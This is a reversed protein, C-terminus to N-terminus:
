RHNIISRSPGLGGKEAMRQVIKLARYCFSTTVSRSGYWATGRHDPILFIPEDDWGGDHRQSNLLAMVWGIDFYQALERISNGGLCTLILFAADQPTVARREIEPQLRDLLVRSTKNLQDKPVQPWSRTSLITLLRLTAWLAYPPVYYLNAGLGNQLIREVLSLASKKITDDYGAWRCDILGLLLNTETTVCSHGWVVIPADGNGDGARNFWVPIEGSPLISAKLWALPLELIQRHKDKNEAASFRYLRLLLGLDDADPPLPSYDYYSFGTGQLTAYVEAVQESLDHGHQCLAEIILGSPFAKGVLEPLREPQGRQIDWSERFTLDSLLFAEAMRAAKRVAELYPVLNPKASRAPVPQGSKRSPGSGVQLSFLDGLKSMVAEVLGYYATFTPLILEDALNRCSALDALLERILEGIAGTLVSAGLVQEPVYPQHPDLGAAVLTRLIPYTYDRRMLDRRLMTIDQLNKLIFNLRDMMLCLQTLDATRGTRIAMAVVPIKTFAWQSAVAPPGVTQELDRSPSGPRSAPDFNQRTALFALAAEYYELWFAEHHNWFPSQGPFLHALHLDSRQSLARELLLLGQDFGTVRGLIKNQAYIAASAYIM